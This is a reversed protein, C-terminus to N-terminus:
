ASTLRVITVVQDDHDIQILHRDKLYRVKADAIQLLPESGLGYFVDDALTRLCEQRDEEPLEHWDAESMEFFGYFGDVHGLGNMLDRIIDEYERGFKIGM